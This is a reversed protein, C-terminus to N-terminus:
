KELFKVYTIKNSTYSISNGFTGVYYKAGKPIICEVLALRRARCEDKNAYSHFGPGVFRELTAWLIVTQLRTKYTEGITARFHEFETSITTETDKYVEKYVVIDQKATKKRDFIGITLCM